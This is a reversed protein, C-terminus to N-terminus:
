RTGPLSLAHAFQDWNVQCLLFARPQDKDSKRQGKVAVITARIRRFEAPSWSDEGPNLHLPSANTARGPAYLIACNTAQDYLQVYRNNETTLERFGHDVLANYVTEHNWNGESM